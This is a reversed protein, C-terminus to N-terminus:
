NSTLEYEEKHVHKINLADKVRKLTIVDGDYTTAQLTVIDENWVPEMAEEMIEAIAPFKKGILHRINESTSIKVAEYRRWAEGEQCKCELSAQYNVDIYVDLPNIMKSQGCFKCTGTEM